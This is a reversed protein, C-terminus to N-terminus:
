AGPSVTFIRRVKARREALATGARAKATLRGVFVAVAVFIVVAIVNEPDEVRLDHIPPFVFYNLALVSLLCTLLAPKLGWRAACLVVGGLFILAVNAVYLHAKIVLALALAAVAIAVAGLYPWVARFRGPGGAVGAGIAREERKSAIQMGRLTGGIERPSLLM